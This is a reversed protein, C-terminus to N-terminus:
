SVVALVAQIDRLDCRLGARIPDLEVRDLLAERWHLIAPIRVARQRVEEQEVLQQVAAVARQEIECAVRRNGVDARGVAVGREEEFREAMARVRDVIRRRVVVAAAADTQQLLREARRDLDAFDIEVPMELEGALAVPQRKKRPM